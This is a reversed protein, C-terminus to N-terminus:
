RMGPDRDSRNRETGGREERARGEGGRGKGARRGKEKSVIINIVNPLM